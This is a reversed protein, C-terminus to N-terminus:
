MSDQSDALINRFALPFSAEGTENIARATFSWDNPSFNFYSAGILDWSLATGKGVFRKKKKSSLIKFNDIFRKQGTPYSNLYKNDEPIYTIFTNAYCLM